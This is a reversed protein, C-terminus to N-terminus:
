SCFILSLEKLVNVLSRAPCDPTGFPSPNKGEEFVDVCSRIYHTGPAMESATFRGSRSAPESGNVTSNSLSPSYKM